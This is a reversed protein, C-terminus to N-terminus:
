KVYDISSTITLGVTNILKFIICTIFELKIVTLAFQVIQGDSLAFEFYGLDLAEFITLKGGHIIYYNRLCILHFRGGPPYLMKLIEFLASRSRHKSLTVAHVVKNLCLINIQVEHPNREGKDM